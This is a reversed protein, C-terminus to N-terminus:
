TSSKKQIQDDPINLLYDIIEKKSMNAIICNRCHFLIKMFCKEYMLIDNKLENILLLIYKQIECLKLMSKEKMSIKEHNIFKIQYKDSDNVKLFSMIPPKLVYGIDVSFFSKVNELFDEFECSGLRLIKGLENTIYIEISFNKPSIGIILEVGDSNVSIKQIGYLSPLCFVTSILPSEHYSGYRIEIQQSRFSMTNTFTYRDSRLNNM